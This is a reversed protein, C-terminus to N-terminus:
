FRPYSARAACITTSRVKQQQLQEKVVDLETGVAPEQGLKHEMDTLWAVLPEHLDSYQKATQEVEQLAVDRKKWTKQIEDWQQSVQALENEVLLKESPSCHAVLIPTAERLSRLCEEHAELETHLEQAFRCASIRISTM